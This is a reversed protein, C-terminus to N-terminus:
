WENLVRARRTSKCELPVKWSGSSRSADANAMFGAIDLLSALLADPHDDETWQISM